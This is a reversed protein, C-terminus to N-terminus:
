RDDDEDDADLDDLDDDRGRVRRRGRGRATDPLPLRGLRPDLRRVAGHPIGVPVRVHGFRRGARAFPGPEGVRRQHLHRRLPHRALTFPIVIIAQGPAKRTVTLIVAVFVATLVGRRRVRAAGHRVPGGSDPGPQNVTAAVIDCRPSWSSGWRRRSRASSRPSSTASRTRGTSAATSCRRSRSRRTSTAARHRGRSARDGGDARPRVRVSHRAARSASRGSGPHQDRYTACASRDSRRRPHLHRGGRRGPRPHENTGGRNARRAFSLGRARPRARGGRILLADRWTRCLVEVLELRDVAQEVTAGVAVAGHRELLVAGPLPEPGEALARPSRPPSSRAARRRSRSSRCARSCCRRRPSPPLTRCRARSRSRWRRRSTRTSSRSWTPARRTSRATSRSTRARRAARRAPRATGAGAAWTPHARRRPRGRGLEDKRRGAPTILITGDGLRVSVNGEGASILGRAGLRRGAAM